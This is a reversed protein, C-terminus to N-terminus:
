GVFRFSDAQVFYRASLTVSADKGTASSCAVGGDGAVGVAGGGVATIDVLM